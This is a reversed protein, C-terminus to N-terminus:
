EVGVLVHMLLVGDSFGIILNKGSTRLTVFLTLLLGIFLFDLLNDLLLNLEHTLLDILKSVKLLMDQVAIRM